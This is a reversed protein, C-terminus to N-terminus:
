PPSGGPELTALLEGRALGFLYLTGRGGEEGDGAESWRLTVAHRGALSGLLRADAPLGTAGATAGDHRYALVDPEDWAEPVQIRVLAGGEVLRAAPADVPLPSWGAGLPGAPAAAAEGPAALEAPLRELAVSTPRVALGVLLVLPAGLAMAATMARHRRRLRRIM